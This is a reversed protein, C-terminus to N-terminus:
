IAVLYDLRELAAVSLQDRYKPLVERLQTFRTRDYFHCAEDYSEFTTCTRSGKAPKYYNVQYKGDPKLWCKGVTEDSYKALQSNISKPLFCCTEPSYVKAGAILLDKDLSWGEQRFGEQHQCWEAFVQFKHWEDCVTKDAYSMDGPNNEDYCRSMMGIWASYERTRKQTDTDWCRYGEGLIGVGFVSRVYPNKIKRDVLSTYAVIKEFGDDFRVLYKRGAGPLKNVVTLWGCKITEIRTGIM